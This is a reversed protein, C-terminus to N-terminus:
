PTRANKAGKLTKAWERLAAKDDNCAALSDLLALAGDALEGNTSPDIVPVPCDALLRADPLSHQVVVPPASRTACGTLSLLIAGALLLVNPNM